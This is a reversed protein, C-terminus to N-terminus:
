RVCPGIHQLGDEVCRRCAPTSDAVMKAGTLDEFMSMLAFLADTKYVLVREHGNLVTQVAFLKEGDEGVGPQIAISRNPDLDTILGDVTPTFTVMTPQPGTQPTDESM